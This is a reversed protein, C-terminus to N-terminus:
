DDNEVLVIRSRRAHRERLNDCILCDCSCLRAHRELKRRLRDGRVRGNQVDLLFRLCSDGGFPSV